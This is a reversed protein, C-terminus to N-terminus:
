EGYEFLIPETCGIDRLNAGGQLLNNIVAYEASHRLVPILDRGTGGPGIRERHEAVKVAARYLPEGALPRQM